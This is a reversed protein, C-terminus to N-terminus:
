CWVACPAVFGSLHIQKWFYYSGFFSYLSSCYVPEKLALPAKFLIKDVVGASRSIPKIVADVPL